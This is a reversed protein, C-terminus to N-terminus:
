NDLDLMFLQMPKEDAERIHYVYQVAVFAQSATGLAVTWCDQM